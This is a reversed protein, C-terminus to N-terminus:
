EHLLAPAAEGDPLAFQPIALPYFRADQTEQGTAPAPRWGRRWVPSSRPGGSGSRGIERFAPVARKRSTVPAGSCGGSAARSSTPWSRSTPSDSPRRRASPSGTWRYSTSPSWLPAGSRWPPVPAPDRPQAGDRSGSATEHEGHAMVLERDCVSPTSASYETRGPSENQAESDGRM